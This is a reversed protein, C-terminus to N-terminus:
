FMRCPNKDSIILSVMASVWWFEEEAKSSFMILMTESSLSPLFIFKLTIEM